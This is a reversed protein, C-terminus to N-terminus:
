YWFYEVAHTYRWQVKRSMMYSCQNPQRSKGAATLLLVFIKCVRYICAKKLPCM